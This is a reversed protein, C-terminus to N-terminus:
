FLGSNCLMSSHSFGNSGVYFFVVTIFIAISHLIIENGINKKEPRFKGLLLGSILGVASLFFLIIYYLRGINIITNLEKEFRINECINWNLYSSLIPVLLLFGYVIAIIMKKNKM